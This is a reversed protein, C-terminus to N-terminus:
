QPQDKVIVRVTDSGEFLTGDLLAGTVIFVVEDGPEVEVLDQINFKAIYTDKGGAVMGKIAPAGECDITDLVIDAVGYGDPLQIFATFEGKNKLNIVVPEIRVTAEVAPVPIYAYGIAYGSGKGSFWMKYANGEKLVLPTYTRDTRWEPASTDDVHLMPNEADKIWIIGDDSYAYGIGDNSNSIGGSYWMHYGDELELVTWAYLYGADWASPNNDGEAMIVPMTGYRKWYIGDASYALATNEQTGEHWSYVDYYMVYKNGMPDDDNITEYGVPDYLVAGPGYSGYWWTGYVNTFLPATPDQMMIEDNTWTIGDISEATRFLDPDYPWVSANAYWIRYHTEVNIVVIHNPTGTLGTAMIANSWTLGDNSTTYGVVYSGGLTDTYWMHYIGDIKLVNPYYARDVGAFVPNGSYEEWITNDVGRTNIAIPIGLLGIFGWCGALLTTITLLCMSVLVVKNKM